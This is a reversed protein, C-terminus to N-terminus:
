IQPEQAAKEYIEIVQDATLEPSLHTTDIQNPIADYLPKRLELLDTIKRAKSGGEILPRHTDAVVRQLITAPSASLCIVVGTRSFDRV